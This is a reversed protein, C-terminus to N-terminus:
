KAFGHIERKEWQERQMKKDVSAAGMEDFVTGGKGRRLLAFQM